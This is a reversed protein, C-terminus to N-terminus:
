LENKASSASKSAASSASSASKSASVSAQSASKSALSSASSASKAAAGTASSGRSSASSAALGAQQKIWDVYSYVTDMLQNGKMSADETARAYQNGASSTAAGAYSSASSASSALKNSHKRALAILENRKSGQPVKIGNKDAWEKIQSDSWSDLLQDSLYNTASAASAAASSSADAARQSALRSNRRVSAILKDRTSPQPAPLGRADLWEKLESESWSSYLWNGPYAVTEGIKNAATQYNSRATTLLSDRTRPTPNPIGHYDLFSKLQSDTWSDFIWGSVSNYADSAQQETEYWYSKVSSVLSDKNSETGKKAQQGKSTLYSQLQNTDWSNYPSVVYNDWNDKVLNELDKRDAPTPYPVDHDSLWRELETEHWKNYAAKGFWTSAVAADAALLAVLATRLSFRMKYVTTSPQPPPISSIIHASWFGKGVKDKEADDNSVQEHAREPRKSMEENHKKVDDSEEGTKPPNENLIKPQAGETGKQKELRTLTSFQRRGVNISTSYSRKGGSQKAEGTNHGEATGKTPTSGSGQGAKPPPPGPHEKDASPNAGQEKPKEGKPDGEGSGYDGALCRSSSQFTRLQGARTIFPQGLSGRTVFRTARAFSM